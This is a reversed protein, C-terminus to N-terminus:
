SILMLVQVPVGTMISKDSSNDCHRMHMGRVKLTGVKCCGTDVEKQPSKEGQRRGWRHSPRRAVAPTCVQLTIGSSTISSTIGRGLEVLPKQLLHIFVGAGKGGSCFFVGM